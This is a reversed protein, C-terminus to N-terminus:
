WNKHLIYEVCAANKALQQIENLLIQRRNVIVVLIGTNVESLLYM